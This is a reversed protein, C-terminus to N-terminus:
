ETRKIFHRDYLRRLTNLTTCVGRQARLAPAIMEPRLADPALGCAMLRNFAANMVTAQAALMVEFETLNNTALAGRMAAVIGDLDLAVPPGAGPALAAATLKETYAAPLPPRLDNEDEDENELDQM